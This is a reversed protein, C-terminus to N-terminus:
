KWKMLNSGGRKEKTKRVIKTHMLRHFAYIADAWLTEPLTWWTNMPVPNQSETVPSEPPAM